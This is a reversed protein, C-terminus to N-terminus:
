DISAQIMAKDDLNNYLKVNPGYSRASKESEETNQNLNKKLRQQLSGLRQPQKISNSSLDSDKELDQYLKM